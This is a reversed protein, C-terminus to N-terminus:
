KVPMFGIDAKIAVSDFTVTAFCHFLYQNLKAILADSFDINKHNYIDLVEWLIEHYGVVFEEIELIHKLVHCIEEKSYKYGKKLVWVCECLVFPNIFLSAKKENYKAFLQNVSEAQEADDQTIYRLLINTDIALM